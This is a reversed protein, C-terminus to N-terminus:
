RGRQRGVHRGPRGAAFRGEGDRRAIVDGQADLFSRAREEIERLEWNRDLLEEVRERWARREARLKARLRVRSGIMLGLAGCAAGFLAAAGVAFIQLDYAAWPGRAGALFGFATAFSVSLIIAAHAVTWAIRRSFVSRLLSIFSVM